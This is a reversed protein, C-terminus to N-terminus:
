LVGHLLEIRRRRVPAANAAEVAELVEYSAQKFTFVIMQRISASDDATMIPVMVPAGSM